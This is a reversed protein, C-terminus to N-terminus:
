RTAVVLGAGIMTAGSARQIQTRATESKLATRLQEALGAYIAAVVIWCVSLTLALVLYNQADVAALDVVNPVLAVYFIVAAPNAIGLGLGALADFRNPAWGSDLTATPKKLLLKVGVVVLYVAGLIKIAAFLREFREAIEAIGFVALGLLALKALLVGLAFPIAAKSGGSLSRGFVTLTDPGPPAASALFALAFVVLEAM